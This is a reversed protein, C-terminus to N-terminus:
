EDWEAGIFDEGELGQWDSLAELQGPDHAAERYARALEDEREKLSKRLSENVFKSISGREITSYLLAKLDEPISLTIHVSKKRM